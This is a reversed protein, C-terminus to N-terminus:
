KSLTVTVKFYNSSNLLKKDLIALLKLEQLAESLLKLWRSDPGKPLIYTVSGDGLLDLIDLYMEPNEDLIRSASSAELFDIVENDSINRLRFLRYDEATTEM